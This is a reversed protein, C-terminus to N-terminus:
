RKVAEVCISDEFRRPNDLVHVGEILSEGYEKRQVDSVGIKELRSSLSNFDYVWKHLNKNGQMIRIWKIWFPDNGNPSEVMGLSELLIDGQRHKQYYREVRCFLDPVIIRIVGGDQLVRYCERLLNEADEKYLHELFHSTHIYKVSSDMFPLGKRVDLITINSPWSLAYLGEPLVGIKYLFKRLRPHKALKANFSSDINIWDEPTPSNGCGINLKLDKPESM